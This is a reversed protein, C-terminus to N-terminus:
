SATSLRRAVRYRMAASVASDALSGTPQGDFGDAGPAGGQLGRADIVSIRDINEM